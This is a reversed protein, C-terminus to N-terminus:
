VEHKGGLSYCAYTVFQGRRNKGTKRETIINYGARKLEFIAASLRTYGLDRFAELPTISGYENIYELVRDARSM